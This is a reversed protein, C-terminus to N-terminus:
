YIACGSGNTGWTTDAWISSSPVYNITYGNFRCSAHTVDDIIWVINFMSSSSTCVSRADEYARGSIGFNNRFYDHLYTGGYAYVVASASAHVNDNCPQAYHTGWGWPMAYPPLTAHANGLVFGWSSRGADAPEGDDVPAFAGFCLVAAAMAIAWSARRKLKKM